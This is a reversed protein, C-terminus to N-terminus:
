QEHRAHAGFQQGTIGAGDGSVGYRPREVVPQRQTCALPRLHELCQLGIHHFCAIGEMRGPTRKPDRAAMVNGCNREKM